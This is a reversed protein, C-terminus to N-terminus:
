VAVFEAVSVVEAINPLAPAVALLEGFAAVKDKLENPASKLRKICAAATEKASLSALDCFARLCAVLVCWSSRGNVRDRSCAGVRVAREEFQNDFSIYAHRFPPNPADFKM